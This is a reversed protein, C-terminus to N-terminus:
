RKIQWPYLFGYNTLNNTTITKLIYEDTTDYAVSSTSLHFGTALTLIKDGDNITICGESNIGNVIYYQCLFPLSDIISLSNTAGIEAEDKRLYQGSGYIIKSSATIEPIVGTLVNDEGYTFTVLPLCIPNNMAGSLTVIDIYTKNNLFLIKQFNDISVIGFIFSYTQTDPINEPLPCSPNIKNKVIKFGAVTVDKSTETFQIQNNKNNSILTMYINIVGAWGCFCSCCCRSDTISDLVVTVQNLSNWLTDGIKMENLREFSLRKHLMQVIVSDHYNKIQVTVDDYDQHTVTLQDFVIEANIKDLTSKQYENSLLANSKLILKYYQNFSGSKYRLLLVKNSILKTIPYHYYGPRLMGSQLVCIKRGDLDFIDIVVHQLLTNQLYLVGNRIGLNHKLRANSNKTNLINFEFAGNIDTTVTYNTSNLKVVANNIPNGANDIVRGSIISKAAVIQILLLLYILFLNRFNKM